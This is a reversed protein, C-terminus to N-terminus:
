RRMGLVKGEMICGLVKVAVNVGLILGDFEKDGRKLTSILLPMVIM